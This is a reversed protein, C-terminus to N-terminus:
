KAPAHRLPWIELRSRRVDRRRALSHFALNLSTMTCTRGYCSTRCYDGHTTQSASLDVNQRVAIVAIRQRSRPHPHHPAPVLDHRGRMLLSSTIPAIKVHSVNGDCRCAYRRRHCCSCCCCCLLSQARFLGLCRGRDIYAVVIGSVCIRVQALLPTPLLLIRRNFAPVSESNNGCVNKNDGHYDSKLTIRASVM